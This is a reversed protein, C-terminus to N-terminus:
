VGTSVTKMEQQQFRARLLYGPIIWAAVVAVTLLLPYYFPPIFLSLFVLVWCIMGGVVLPRFRLLVGSLITPMGYLILFFISIYAMQSASFIRGLMFGIWAMLVVFVLWVYSLIEDAYTKVKEVKKKRIIYVFQIIAAVWTLAWIADHQKVHLLHLIFQGLSCIFVTWGWLLYLFGNESFRNKAQQIMSEIVQFGDAASFSADETRMGM